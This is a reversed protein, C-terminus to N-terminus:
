AVKRKLRELTILVLWRYPVVLVSQHLLIVLVLREFIAPNNIFSHKRSNPIQVTYDQYAVSRTVSTIGGSVEFSNRNSHRMTNATSSKGAGTIGVVLVVHRDPSVFLPDSRNISDVASSQIVRGRLREERDDLCLSKDTSHEQFYKLWILAAASLARVM